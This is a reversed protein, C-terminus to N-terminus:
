RRIKFDVRVTLIVSVPIRNLLTPSFVWQRVADVAARDFLPHGEVIRLDAVHGSPDIVCEILVRGEVGARQALDPYVPNVHRLKAPQRLESTIRIPGAPGSGGSPGDNGDSAGDRPDSACREDFCLGSREGAAPEDLVSVTPTVIPTVDAAAPTTPASPARFPRSPRPGPRRLPAVKIPPTTKVIVATPWTPSTARPTAPEPLAQSVLAPISLAGAVALVHAVLSLPLAGAARAIRPRDASVVLQEFLRRPM